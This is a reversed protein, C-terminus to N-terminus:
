LFANPRRNGTELRSHQIIALTHIGAFMSREAALDWAQMVNKKKRLKKARFTDEGRLRPRALMVMVILRGFGPSKSAAIALGLRGAGSTKNLGSSM